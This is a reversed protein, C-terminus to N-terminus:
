FKRIERPRIMSAVLWRAAGSAKEKKKKKKKRFGPSQNKLYTHKQLFYLQRDVGGESVAGGLGTENDGKHSSAYRKRVENGCGVDISVSSDADKYALRQSHTHKRKGGGKQHASSAGDTGKPQALKTMHKSNRYM